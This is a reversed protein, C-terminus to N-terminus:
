LTELIMNMSLRVLWGTLLTVCFMTQSDAVIVFRTNKAAETMHGM